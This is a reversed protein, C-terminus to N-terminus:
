LRVRASSKHHLIVVNLSVHNRKKQFFAKVYDYLAFVGFGCRYRNLHAMWRQNDGVYIQRAIHIADVKRLVRM